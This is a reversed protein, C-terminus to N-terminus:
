RSLGKYIAMAIENGVAERPIRRGAKFQEGQIVEVEFSRQFSIDNQHFLESLQRVIADAIPRRDAYAFGHLIVENIRIEISAIRAPHSVRAPSKSDSWGSKQNM